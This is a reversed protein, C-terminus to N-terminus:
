KQSFYKKSALLLGFEESPNKKTSKHHIKHARRIGLLYPNTSKFSKFRNHIFWDHFIFYIIGYVSIGLGIWFKYSLDLRGEWMLYLSISAFLLSFVDNFELWGHRESHHSKHIFWLPGHFLYKHIFWSFAEMAAITLLIIAIHLVIQM